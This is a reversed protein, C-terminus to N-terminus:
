RDSRPHRVLRERLWLVAFFALREFVPFARSTRLAERVQARAAAEDGARLMRGARRIATTATIALARATLTAATEPPLVDRNIAITRRLDVVNEGVSRSRDSSSAGHVRYLALPEPEYWVAFHAAIRTWMEWDESHTLRRDFGGLQEYVTRRVVMCPTQLRQGLAIQELWNELVGGTDRELPAITQWNGRGDMSIYRCFAAGIQPREFAAQMTRYFGPRVADDGHLLHVIQGRARRLCTNFNRVHGVNEPQGYFGVRDGGLEEVVAQPDDSSCDDVVEIQMTGAGPDQALVSALAERLYAACNFSPIMVSWLPRGDAPPLPEIPERFPQPRLGTV